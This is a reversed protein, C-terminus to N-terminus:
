EASYLYQIRGTLTNIFLVGSGTKGSANPIGREDRRYNGQAFLKGKGGTRMEEMSEWLNPHVQNRYREKELTFPM